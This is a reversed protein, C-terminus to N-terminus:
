KIAILKPKALPVNKTFKITLMGDELNAEQIEFHEAIRFSKSFSRQAIGKYQYNTDPVSNEKDATITLVGNEEQITVESKKFGAVALELYFENDSVTVINHPPYNVTTTQFDRFMPGFGVAIQNFHNFLRDLERNTSM